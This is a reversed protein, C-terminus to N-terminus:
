LTKARLLLPFYIYYSYYMADDYLDLTSATYRIGRDRTIRIRSAQSVKIYPIDRDILACSQHLQEQVTIYTPSDIYAGAVM